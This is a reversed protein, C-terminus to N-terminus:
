CRTRSSQRRAFQQIERDRLAAEREEGGIKRPEVERNWFLSEEMHCFISGCTAGPHCWGLGTIVLWLLAEIEEQQMFKLDWSLSQNASTQTTHSGKFWDCYASFCPVWFLWAWIGQRGRHDAIWDSDCPQFLLSAWYFSVICSLCVTCTWWGAWFPPSEDVTWWIRLLLSITRKLRRQTGRASSWEQSM